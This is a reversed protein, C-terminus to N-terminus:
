YLNLLQEITIEPLPIIKTTAPPLSLDQYRAFALNNKSLSLKIATIKTLIKRIHNEITAM